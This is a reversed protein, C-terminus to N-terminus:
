RHHALSEGLAADATGGAGDERREEFYRRVTAHFAPKDSSWRWCQGPAAAIDTFPDFDALLAHREGYRRDGLDGHWLHFIRGPASVVRAATSAFFPRAWGLYHEARRPNARMARLALSFRGLGGCATARDGGGLICADYLGHRAVLDRRAAWALGCTSRFTSIAAPEALHEVPAGTEVKDIASEATAPGSWARARVVPYFRPLDHREHFLHVMAQRELAVRADRAWTEREFIIDCDLWAVFECDGPLARIGITLLRDKQWLADGGDIRVVRDADDPALEFRGGLGQEVALLPVGLHRRFTRLNHRKTRYGAPNFYSTVAWLRGDDQHSRGM